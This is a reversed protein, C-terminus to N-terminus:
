SCGCLNGNNHYFVFAFAKTSSLTGGKVTIELGQSYEEKGHSFKCKWTGSDSSSNLQVTESGTHPNGDPREWQVAPDSNLGKVKCQLTVKSGLLFDDTPRASVSVSLSLLRPRSYQTLMVSRFFLGHLVFSKMWITLFMVCGQSIIPLSIHFYIMASQDTKCDPVVSAHEMWSLKIKLSFVAWNTFLLEFYPSTKFKFFYRYHIM